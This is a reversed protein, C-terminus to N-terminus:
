PGTIKCNPLAKNLEAVGADTIKTGLLNLHELKQLKALEKLGEDTIKTGLLYLWELKQLKALEKLGEDTIKTAGLNLNTLQQLKAVEKLGEDTIKTAYLNLNTLQQLKALEKLGANTVRTFNLQLRELKQLKAVDKLGADTIQTDTLRLNRLKQLKAVDELGVATIQTDALFLHTLNQFKGVEKLGADTIKNVSLNLIKLKQLKAVDKLGEDTINTKGLGLFTLQKLKSVEKLGADTIKTFSLNLGTVKELDANTLEGEPMKLMERVAKEVIPEAILGTKSKPNDDLVVRLAIAEYAKELLRGNKRIEFWSENKDEAIKKIFLTATLGDQLKPKIVISALTKTDTNWTTHRITQGDNFNEVFLNRVHDYTVTQHYPAAGEPKGTIEISSGKKVWKGMYSEFAKGSNKLSVKWTGVRLGLAENIESKDLKKPKNKIINKDAKSDYVALGVVAMMVLIQKMGM